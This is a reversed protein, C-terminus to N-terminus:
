NIITNSLDLLISYPFYLRAVYQLSLAYLKWTKINLFPHPLKDM